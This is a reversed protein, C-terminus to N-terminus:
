KIVFAYFNIRITKPIKFHLRMNKHQAKYYMQKNKRSMKKEKKPNPKILTITFNWFQIISYLNETEYKNYFKFKGGHRVKQFGNQKTM